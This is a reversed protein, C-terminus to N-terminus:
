TIIASLEFEAVVDVLRSPLLMERVLRVVRSTKLAAECALRPLRRAPTQPRCGGLLISEAPAAPPASCENKRKIENILVEPSYTGVGPHGGTHQPVSFLNTSDFGLLIVSISSAARNSGIRITRGRSICSYAPFIYCMRHQAIVLFHRAHEQEYRCVANRRKLEM